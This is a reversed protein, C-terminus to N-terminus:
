AGVLSRVFVHLGDDGNITTLGLDSVIFWQTALQRYSEEEKKTAANAALVYVGPQLRPIAEAIPFATTVDENLRSVVDMEGEYVRSGTRERLNAIDYSSVQKAFDGNQLT